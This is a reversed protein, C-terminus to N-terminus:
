STATKSDAREESNAQETFDNVEEKVKEYQQSISELFEEFKERLVDAYDEGKKSIKKRTVSGKDPAFLIGLLAGVAVGALVGLLLEGPKM